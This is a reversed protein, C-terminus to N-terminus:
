LDLDCHGFLPVRKEAMVDVYWTHPEKRIYYLLYEGSVIIRSFLDSTLTAAVWFHYAVSRWALVCVCVSNENLRTDTHTAFVHMRYFLKLFPM